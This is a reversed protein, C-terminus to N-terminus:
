LSGRSFGRSCLAIAKIVGIWDKASKPCSPQNARLSWRLSKSDLLRQLQNVLISWSTFSHKWKHQQCSTLTGALLTTNHHRSRFIKFSCKSFLMSLLTSSPNSPTSLNLSLYVLPNKRAAEDSTDETKLRLRTPRRGVLCRTARSFFGRTGLTNMESIRYKIQQVTKIKIKIQKSHRSVSFWCYVNTHIKLWTELTM